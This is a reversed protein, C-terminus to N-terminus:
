INYQKAIKKILEAPFKAFKKNSILMKIVTTSAGQGGNLCIILINNFM